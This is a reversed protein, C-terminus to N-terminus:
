HFLVSFAVQSLSLSLSPPSLLCALVLEKLATLGTSPQAFDQVDLPEPSAEVLHSAREGVAVSVLNHSLSTWAGCLQHRTSDSVTERGRKFLLSKRTQIDIHSTM